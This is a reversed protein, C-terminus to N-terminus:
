RDADAGAAPPIARRYTYSYAIGGLLSVLYPGNAGQLPENVLAGLLIVLLSGLLFLFLDQPMAGQRHSCLIQRFLLIFMAAVFAGGVIGFGFLVSFYSSHFHVFRDRSLANVGSDDLAQTMKGPGWGFIPRQSWKEWFVRYMALRLGVGATAADKSEESMAQVVADAQVQIRRQVLDTQALQYLAIVGIVLLTLAAGFVARKSKIGALLSALAIPPLVILATLWASRSQSFILAAGTTGTGALWLAAGPMWGMPIAPVVVFRRWFVMLGLLAISTWIGLNVASYGFTAREAGSVMASLQAGIDNWELRSGIRWGFGALAAGLLWEARLPFRSLWYGLLVIGFFGTLLWGNAEDWAAFAGAPSEVATWLTRLTLYLLFAMSLQLMRDHILSRLDYRYRLAALLILLLLGQNARAVDMSSFFAFWFLAFIALYNLRRQLKPYRLPGPGFANSEDQPPM